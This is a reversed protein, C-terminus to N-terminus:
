RQVTFESSLVTMLQALEIRNRRDEAESGPRIPVSAVAAAIRAKTEATMGNATLVLNLRDVLAAPNDALPLEAGYRPMFSFNPRRESIRDQMFNAFGTVTNATTIQMEPAVIGAAATPFGAAVYGPRFFNFVSPSRFPQQGLTPAANIVNWQMQLGNGLHSSASNLDANRAWHTFRIAPERVKGYLANNRLNVDRAEDDLLVAAMVAEMDGRTRDGAVTGDPLQFYGTNFAATVRSVYGPSPNSTVFKQILQKGIFPGTNPHNFLRDLATDISTAADTNPPIVTGLFRKESTSHEEPFIKMPSYAATPVNDQPRHGGFEDDAWSLGTFVKALGTIDDNTYTEISAGAADLRPSGDPNLEILGITFLQMVERAYNEDPVRGSQSDEKRSNLYTLYQGMAPSYTVDELLTRYNGFANRTLVDMYQAVSAPVDYIDPNEYSVVLIESLAFATRQRLQDSGNIMERWAIDANHDANIQENRGALEAAIRRFEDTHSSYYYSAGFQKRMWASYGIRTLDNIEGETPGFTAQMLFRAADAANPKDAVTPPPPAGQPAPAPAAVEESCAALILASAAVLSSRLFQTASM